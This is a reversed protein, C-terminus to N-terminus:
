RVDTSPAPGPRDEGVCGPGLRSTMGCSCSDAVETGVEETSECCTGVVTDEDCESKGGSGNHKGSYYDGLWVNCYATSACWCDFLSAHGSIM